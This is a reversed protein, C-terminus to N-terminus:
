GAWRKDFYETAALIESDPVYLALKGVLEPPGTIDFLGGPQGGPLEWADPEDSVCWRLLFGFDPPYWARRVENDTTSWGVFRASDALVDHLVTFDVSESPDVYGDHEHWDLLTNLTAAVPLRPVVGLLEARLEETARVPSVLMSGDFPSRM